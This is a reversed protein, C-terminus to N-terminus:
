HLQQYMFLKRTLNDMKLSIQDNNVIWCCATRFCIFNKKTQWLALPNPNLPVHFRKKSTWVLEFVNNICIKSQVICDKSARHYWVRRWNNFTCFHQFINIQYDSIDTGNEMVKRIVQLLKSVVEIKITRKM